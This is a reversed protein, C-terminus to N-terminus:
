RSHRKETRDYRPQIRHQKRHGICKNIVSYAVATALATLEQATDKGQALATEYNRKVTEFTSATTTNAKAQATAKTNTNM